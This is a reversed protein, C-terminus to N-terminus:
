ESACLHAPARQGTWVIALPWFAENWRRTQYGSRRMTEDLRSIRQHLSHSWLLLKDGTCLLNCRGSCLQKHRALNLSVGVCVASLPQLYAIDKMPVNPWWVYLHWPQTFYNQKWHKQSVKSMPIETVWGQLFHPFIKCLTYCIPYWPNTKPCSKANVSRSSMQQMFHRGKLQM